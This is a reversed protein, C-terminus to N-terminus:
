AGVYTAPMHRVRWVYYMQAGKAPGYKNILFKRFALATAVSYEGM